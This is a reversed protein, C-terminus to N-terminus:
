TSGFPRVFVSRTDDNGYALAIFFSFFMMGLQRGFYNETLFLLSFYAITFLLLHNNRKLSTFLMALLYCLFFVLGPIGALLGFHLYQNHTNYEGQFFESQAYREFCQELANRTNGSGVGTLPHDLVLDVSCSWIGLRMESSSLMKGEFYTPTVTTLERFRDGMSPVLLMTIAFVSLLTFPAAIRVVRNRTSRWLWLLTILLFSILAMKGGVMSAALFLVTTALWKVSGHKMPQTAFLFAAFFWAASLYTPHM